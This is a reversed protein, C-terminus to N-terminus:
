ASSPMRSAAYDRPSPSTYLLCLYLLEAQREIQGEVGLRALGALARMLSTKGVGNAGVLQWIEGASVTLNVDALLRRDGREITVDSATLLPM